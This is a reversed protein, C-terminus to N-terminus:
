VSVAAQTCATESVFKCKTIEGPICVPRSTTNVNGGGKKSRQSFGQTHDIDDIAPASEPSKWNKVQSMFVVCYNQEIVIHLDICIKSCM